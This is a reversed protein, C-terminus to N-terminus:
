VLCIILLIFIMYCYVVDYKATLATDEVKIKYDERNGNCRSHKKLTMLM